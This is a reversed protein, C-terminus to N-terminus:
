DIKYKVSFYNHILYFAFPLLLIMMTWAIAETVTITIKPKQAVYPVKVTKLLTALVYGANAIRDNTVDICKSVYESSLETEPEIGQYVSDVAINYSENMAKVYDVTVNPYMGISREKIVANVEKKITEWDDDSYPTKLTWRGCGSDWFDLLSMRQGKYKIFYKQGSDDGDNAFSGVFYEAVHLPAYSELMLALLTKFAFNFPWPGNILSNNIGPIISFLTSNLDDINSHTSNEVGIPRQQFRWHRWCDTNSPPREIYALWAGILSPRDLNENILKQASVSLQPGTDGVTRFAIEAGIVLAEESWSLSFVTFFSLM